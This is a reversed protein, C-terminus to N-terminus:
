SFDNARNKWYKVRWANFQSRDIGSPIDTGANIHIASYNQQHFTQTVEAIPGDQSQLMHHLNVPKGDPGIPARGAQMLELNTMGSKPDVYKPNILDDRQYVKNGNFKIPEEKWYSREKGFANSLANEAVPDSNNNARHTEEQHPKKSSVESHGVSSVAGILVDTIPYSAQRSQLVEAGGFKVANHLALSSMGQMSEGGRQLTYLEATEDTTLKGTDKLKALLENTREGAERQATRLEDVVDLCSKVSSCNTARDRNSQWLKAYQDKVLKRCADTTCNALKQDREIRQKPTLWNNDAAAIAATAAAAANDPSVLAAVGAVLSTVLNRKTDKGANTANPDDTFLNTLLSSAAAGLAGAGCNQSSAAAGACAVIAHLGAHEPSGEKVVGDAVLKGIYAAGQQQVYNVVASQM